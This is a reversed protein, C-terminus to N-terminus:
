TITVTDCRRLRKGCDYDEQEEGNKFLKRLRCLSEGFNAAAILANKMSDYANEFRLLNEWRPFNPIRQDEKIQEFYDPSFCSVVGLYKGGKRCFNKIPDIGPSNADIWLQVKPNVELEAAIRRGSWGHEHLTPTARCGALVSKCLHRALAAEAHTAAARTSDSHYPPFYPINHIGVFNLGSNRAIHVRVRQRTSSHRCSIHRISVVINSHRNTFHTRDALPPPCM